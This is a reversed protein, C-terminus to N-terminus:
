SDPDDSDKGDQCAATLDDRPADRTRHPGDGRPHEQDENTEDSRNLGPGLQRSDDARVLSVCAVERSSARGISDSIALAIEPLM